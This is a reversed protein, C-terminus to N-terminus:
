SFGSCHSNVSTFCCASCSIYSYKSCANEPCASWVLKPDTHRYVPPLFVDKRSFLPNFFRNYLLVPCHPSICPCFSSSSTGAPATQISLVSVMSSRTVSAPNNRNRVPTPNKQYSSFTVSWSSAKGAKFFSFFLNFSILLLSSDSRNSSIQPVPNRFFSSGKSVRTRFPSLLCSTSCVAPAM